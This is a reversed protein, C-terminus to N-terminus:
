FSYPSPVYQLEGSDGIWGQGQGSNETALHLGGIDASRRKWCRRRNTPVNDMMATSRRLGTHCHDQREGRRYIRFFVSLLDQSTRPASLLSLFNPAPKTTSCNGTAHFTGFARTADAHTKYSRVFSAWGSLRV